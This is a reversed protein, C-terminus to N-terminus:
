PDLTDVINLAGWIFLGYSLAVLAVMGAAISMIVPRGWKQPKLDEADESVEQLERITLAWDKFHRKAKKRIDKRGLRKM